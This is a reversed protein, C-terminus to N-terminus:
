QALESVVFSGPIQKPRPHPNDPTPAGAAKYDAAATFVQGTKPDVVM